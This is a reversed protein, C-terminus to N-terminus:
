DPDLGDLRGTEVLQEYQSPITRKRNIEMREGWFGGEMRVRTIDVPKVDTRIEAM